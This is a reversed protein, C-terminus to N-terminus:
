FMFPVTEVHIVKNAPVDSISLQLEVDKLWLRKQMSALRIQFLLATRKTKNVSPLGLDPTPYQCKEKTMPDLLTTTPIHAVVQEKEEQQRKELFPFIKGVLLCSEDISCATKGYIMVLAAITTLDM